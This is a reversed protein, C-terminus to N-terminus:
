CTGKPRAICLCATLFKPHFKIFTFICCSAVQGHLPCCCSYCRVVVADRSCSFSFSPLVLVFMQLCPSAFPSLSLSLLLSSLARACPHAIRLLLLTGRNTSDITFLITTFQQNLQVCLLEM